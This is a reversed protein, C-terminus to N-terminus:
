ELWRVSAAPRPPLNPYRENPYGVMLVSFVQHDEPLELAARLAPSLAAIRCLYGGWCTGLGAESLLQEALAAAIVTDCQGTPAKGPAHAFILCPAGCTVPDRGHRDAWILHQLEPDKEAWDLALRRLREVRERGLVVTWRYPRENHGSPAYAAGDLAAQIVARDPLAAKFHRISRRQQFRRLLTGEPAPAPYCAERGLEEHTVARVPCAATCHFCDLCEKRAASVSGDEGVTFIGLPCVKVCSKCRICLDKDITFM